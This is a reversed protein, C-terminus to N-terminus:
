AASNAKHCAIAAATADRGSAGLFNSDFYM